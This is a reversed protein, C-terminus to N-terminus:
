PLLSKLAVSKIIPMATAKKISKSRFLSRPSRASLKGSFSKRTKGLKIEIITNSRSVNIDSSETTTNNLKETSNNM